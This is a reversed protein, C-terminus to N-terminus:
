PTVEDHLAILAHALAVMKEASSQSPELVTLLESLTPAACLVTHLANVAGIAMVVNVYGDLPLLPITTVVGNDVRWGGGSIWGQPSNAWVLATDLIIGRKALAQSESLPLVISALTTV